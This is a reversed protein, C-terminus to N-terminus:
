ACQRRHARVQDHGGPHHPEGSFGAMLYGGGAAALGGLFFLAAPHTRVVPPLLLIACAGLGYVPCILIKMVAVGIHLHVAPHVVATREDKRHGPGSLKARCDVEVNPYSYHFDEYQQNMAEILEM